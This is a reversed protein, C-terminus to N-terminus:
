ESSSSALQSPPKKASLVIRSSASFYAALLPKSYNRNETAQPLIRRAKQPPFRCACNYLKPENWINGEWSLFTSRKDLFTDLTDEDKKKGTPLSKDFNDRRRYTLLARLAARAPNRTPVSAPPARADLLVPAM